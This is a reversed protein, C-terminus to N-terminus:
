EEQARDRLEDFWTGLAREISEEMAQALGSTVTTMALTRM